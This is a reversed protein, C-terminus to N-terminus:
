WGNGIGDRKAVLGKCRAVRIGFGGKKAGPIIIACHARELLDQGFHFLGHLQAVIRGIQGCGIVGLTRGQLEIGKSRQWQQDKLARDSAPITRVLSLMLRSNLSTELRIFEIM